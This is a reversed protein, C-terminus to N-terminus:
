YNLDDLRRTHVEFCDTLMSIMKEFELSISGVKSELLKQSRKLKRLTVGEKEEILDKISQECIEKESAQTELTAEMEEIRQIMESQLTKYMRTHDCAIAMTEAKLAKEKERLSVLHEQAENEVAYAAKVENCKQAHIAELHALEKSVIEIQQEMPVEPAAAIVKKGKKSKQKADM